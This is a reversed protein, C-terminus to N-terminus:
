SVNSRIKCNLGVPQRWQPAIPNWLRAAAEPLRVRRLAEDICAIRLTADRGTGCAMTGAAVLESGRSQLSLMGVIDLPLERGKCLADALVVDELLHSHDRFLQRGIFHVCKGGEVAALLGGACCFFPHLPRRGLE